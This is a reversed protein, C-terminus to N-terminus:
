IRDEYVKVKLQEKFEDLKTNYAEEQKDYLLTNKVEDKVQDLPKVEDNPYVVTNIIVHYGYKTKVVDSVQNAPLNKFADEFEQVMGSDEFSVRGLDEYTTTDKYEESNAVDKLSEGQLAKQRIEEAEAKAADDAGDVPNGDSDTKVKVLIHTVDAGAKTTYDSIHENYYNEIDEDTVEVDSIMADVVMGLVVQKKMYDKFSDDDYGYSQIYNEYDEDSGLAQKYYDIRSDVEKNIEDDDPDVGVEDKSQLLVEQDVLGDLQKTRLSKLTSKLSENSEYDDGYQEKYSDLYPKLAKDVDERTIKTDGVKALVQKQKSEETREVLNCGTLSFVVIGALAMAVLNKIKIM